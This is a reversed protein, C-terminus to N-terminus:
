KNAASGAAPKAASGAAPKKDAPKADPKKDAPKADPKKDAPKADAPKADPKKDAPKGEPVPKKDGPKEDVHDMPPGKGNNADPQDPVAHPQEPVPDPNPVPTVTPDVRPRYEIYAMWTEVNDLNQTIEIEAHGYKERLESQLRILEARANESKGAAAVSATAQAVSQKLEALRKNTDIYLKRIELMGASQGGGQMARGRAEILAVRKQLEDFKGKYMANLGNAEEQMANVNSSKECGAIALLGLLGVLGPSLVRKM